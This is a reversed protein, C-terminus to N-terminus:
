LNKASQFPSPAMGGTPAVDIQLWRERGGQMSLMCTSAAFAPQHRAVVGAAESDWEQQNGADPNACFVGIVSGLAFCAAWKGYHKATPRQVYPHHKALLDVDAMFAAWVELPVRGVLQPPLTDPRHNFRIVRGVGPQSARLFEVNVRYPTEQFAAM